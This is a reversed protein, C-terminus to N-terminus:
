DAYSKNSGRASALANKRQDAAWADSWNFFINVVIAAFFNDGM